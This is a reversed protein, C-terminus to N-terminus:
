LEWFSDPDFTEGDDEMRFNEPIIEEPVNFFDDEELKAELDEIEYNIVKSDVENFYSKMNDYFRKPMYIPNLLTMKRNFIINEKIHEKFLNGKIKKYYMVVEILREIFEDSNINIPEPHIEKYLKYVTKAGDKGIGRGDPNIKGDKIKILSPINDGTDGEIIKCVSAEESSTSKIKTRNILNEVYKVFEGSNDLEFINENVSNSIEEVALQYNEPLYVREDNFKYNWQINIFKLNLDYELLQKIDGDSSIIINSYGKKNSERVIYAIFDDGELGSMELFKVNRKEKIEDKFKDYTEYVFDWDITEDKVRTGKYEKYELKRWNGERSDSVFYLNDFPFSKTLKKFDNLLLQNLDQKIRRLKKLIFLDKYLLYNGDIIINIKM